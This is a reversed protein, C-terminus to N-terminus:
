GRARRAAERGAPTASAQPRDINPTGITVRMGRQIAEGTANARAQAAALDLGRPTGDLAWLLMNEMALPDIMSLPIARTEQVTALIQRVRSAVADDVVPAASPKRATM